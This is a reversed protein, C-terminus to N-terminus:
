LFVFTEGLADLEDDLEGMRWRGEGVICFIEMMVRGPAWPGSFLKGGLSRDGRRKNMFGLLGASAELIVESFVVSDWIVVLGAFFSSVM